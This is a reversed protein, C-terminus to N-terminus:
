TVTLQSAYTHVPEYRRGYGCHPVCTLAALLTRLLVPLSLTPAGRLVNDWCGSHSANAGSHEGRWGRRRPTDRRGPRPVHQHAADHERAKPTTHQPPPAHPAPCPPALRVSHQPALRRPSRGGARPSPSSPRAASPTAATPACRWPPRAGCRASRAAPAAPSSRACRHAARRVCLVRVHPSCPLHTPRCALPRTVPPWCVCAPHARHTPLVVPSPGLSPPGVCARLTLVAPPYSSLRPASHSPWYVSAPHARCTPLVVPSPGLSQALVCQRPSCPPHTPRCALPRTVPGICVPPTLVTPPYSSLRPASHRAVAGPRHPLTDPWHRGDYHYYHFAKFGM